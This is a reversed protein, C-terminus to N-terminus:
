VVCETILSDDEKLMHESDAVHKATRLKLLREPLRKKYDSDDQRHVHELNNRVSEEDVAPREPRFRLKILRKLLLHEFLCGFQVQGAVVVRLVVVIEHQRNRLRLARNVPEENHAVADHLCERNQERRTHEIEHCIRHADDEHEGREDEPEKYGIHQILQVVLNTKLDIRKFPFTVVHATDEVQVVVRLFKPKMGRDAVPKFLFKGLRVILDVLHLLLRGRLTRKETEGSVVQSGIENHVTQINRIKDVLRCNKFRNRSAVRNYEKVTGSTKPVTHCVKRVDERLRLLVTQIDVLDPCKEIVLRLDPLIDAPVHRFAVSLQRKRMYAETVVLVGLVREAVDRKRYLRALMDCDDAVVAGALCRKYLKQHPKVVRGAALNGVVPLVDAFEPRVVVPVAEANDELIVLHVARCKRFIHNHVTQGCSEGTRVRDFYRVRKCSGAEALPKLRKRCSELRLNRGLKVLCAHIERAALALLNCDRSREILIRVDQNHVLRRARKVRNGLVFEILCHLRGRLALGYEIDRVPKRRRPVRVTDQHELVPPNDLFARM